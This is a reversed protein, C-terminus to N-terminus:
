DRTRSREYRRLLEDERERYLEQRTPLRGNESVQWLPGKLFEEVAELQTKTARGVEHELLDSIFRSMSKGEVAAKEQVQAAIKEDLTITVETMARDKAFPIKHTRM